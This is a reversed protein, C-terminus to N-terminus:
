LVLDFGETKILGHECAYALLRQICLASEDDPVAMTRLSRTLSPTTVVLM